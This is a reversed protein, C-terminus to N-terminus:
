FKAYGKLNATGNAGTTLSTIHVFVVRDQNSRALFTTGSNVTLRGNNVPLGIDWLSDLEAKTDINAPTTVLVSKIVTHNPNNFDSMFDFGASGGIGGKASDPSYIASSGGALATSYAFILDIEATMTKAETITHATFADLDISSGYNANSQAGATLEKTTLAVTVDGDGDDDTLCGTLVLGLSLAAVTLINQTNFRNM